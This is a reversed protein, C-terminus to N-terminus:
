ENLLEEKKLFENSEQQRCENCLLIQYDGTKSESFELIHTKPDHACALTLKKVGKM